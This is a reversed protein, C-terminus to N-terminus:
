HGLLLRGGAMGCAAAGEWRDRLATGDVRRGVLVARRRLLASAVRVRRRGPPLVDLHLRRVAMRGPQAVDDLLLRRAGRGAAGAVDAAVAQGAVAHRRRRDGAHGARSGPRRRAPPLSGHPSQLLLAFFFFESSGLRRRLVCITCIFATVM